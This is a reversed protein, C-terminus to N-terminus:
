SYHRILGNSPKQAQKKQFKEDPDFVKIFKSSNAAIGYLCKIEFIVNLMLAGACGGTM